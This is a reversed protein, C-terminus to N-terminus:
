WTKRLSHNSFSGKLGVADAMEAILLGSMNKKIHESGLPFAKQRFFVYNEPNKVIEPYKSAYDGLTAKVKPTITIRNTKSTKGEKIDFFDKPQGDEEFLDRIKISLLDSIRLASNIGFEFLLLDRIRGEGRLLNKIQAIKKSDRIPEVFKM